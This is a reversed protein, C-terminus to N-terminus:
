KMRLAEIRTKIVKPNRVGRLSLTSDGSISQLVITGTNFFQAIPDRLIVIESLDDLPLTQIERGTCGNSVIVRYSTVSYQAWRRLTAACVLLATAGGM